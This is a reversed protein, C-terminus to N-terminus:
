VLLMSPQSLQSPVSADSYFYYYYHCYYHYYYDTLSIAISSLIAPVQEIQTFSQQYAAIMKQLRKARRAVDLDADFMAPADQMMSM